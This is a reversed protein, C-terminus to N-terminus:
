PEAFILSSHQPSLVSTQAFSEAQHRFGLAQPRFFSVRCRFGSYNPYQAAALM